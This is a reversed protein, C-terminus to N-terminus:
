TPTETIFQMIFTWMKKLPGDEIDSVCTKCTYAPGDELPYVEMCETCINRHCFSCTLTHRDICVLSQCRACEAVRDLAVTTCGCHLGALLQYETTAIRDGDWGSESVTGVDLSQGSPMQLQQFKQIRRGPLPSSDFVAANRDNAQEQMRKRM